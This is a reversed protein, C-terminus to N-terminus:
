STSVSALLLYDDLPNIRYGGDGWPLLPFPNMLCGFAGLVSLVGAIVGARFLLRRWKPYAQVDNNM